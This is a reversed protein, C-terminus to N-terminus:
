PAEAAKALLRPALARHAPGAVKWTRAAVPRHFRLMTTWTVQSDGVEFRMRGAMLSGDADLEFLHESESRIVWGVFTGPEGTPALDFALIGHWVVKAFAGCSAEAGKM